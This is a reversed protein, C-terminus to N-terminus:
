KLQFVVPLTFSFTEGKLDQPIPPFPSAKMVAKEAAKTLVKFKSGEIVVVDQVEGTRDVTVNLRVHGQWGRELARKPYVLFRYSWKKLSAIYLQQALLSEATFDFDEEEEELLDADLLAQQPEAAPTKNVPVPTAVVIEQEDVVPAQVEPKVTAIPSALAPPAVITPAAPKTVIAAAAPAAAAIQTNAAPQSSKVSQIAAIREDSPVTADFRALLESDVNGAVLLGDRFGSSLPVPGIWTRLLLNFFESSQIEGLDIGNLIVQVSDDKRRITFIDGAILKVKLMNSFDAMYQANATLEASSANIAMGEIWMRKFSRASLRNALIRVQIQKDEPAMLIQSSSSSLSTVSLAAIFQEKGLQSHISLGNLSTAAHVNLAVVQLLVAIASLKISRLFNYKRM